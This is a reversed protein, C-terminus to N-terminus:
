QCNLSVCESQIWMTASSPRGLTYGPGDELTVVVSFGQRNSAARPNPLAKVLLVAYGSHGIFAPSVLAVYDVGPIATGSIKFKVYMGGLTLAAGLDASAMNLVFASTHGRAVNGTTHITVAPGQEPSIADSEAAAQFIPAIALAVVFLMATLQINRNKMNSLKREQKPRGQVRTMSFENGAM